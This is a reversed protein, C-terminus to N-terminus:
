VVSEPCRGPGTEAGEQEARPLSLVHTCLTWQVSTCLPCSNLGTLEDKRLGSWGRDMLFLREREKTYLSHVSSVPSYVVSLVNSHLLVSEARRREAPAPDPINFYKRM